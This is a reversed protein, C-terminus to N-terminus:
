RDAKIFAVDRTKGKPDHWFETVVRWGRGQMSAVVEDHLPAGEYMVKTHTELLILDLQDLPAGDIVDLEAGQVDVVAVNVREDVIDALRHVTVKAYVEVSKRTPRYLSSFKMQETIHFRRWGPTSACAGEIVTVRPMKRLAEALPPIPEVLVIPEFGVQRFLGVEEGRHAGVQVVGRPTVQVASLLGPFADTWAVPMGLRAFMSPLSSIPQDPVPGGEAVARLARVDRRLHGRNIYRRYADRDREYQARSNVQRYGDDKVAKGARYHLHEIVTDPLYTIRRLRRGVTLWWRDCVLHGLTPPAMYGLTRVVTSTMAVATPLDARRHLDNGYAFGVPGHRDLADLLTRDWEPTRPCHDDGWFALADYSDAHEVARQNLTGIMGQWRAHVVWPAGTAVYAGLNTPDGDVAVLLDANGSSTARWAQWLRTINHPRGRTPVIVLLRANM